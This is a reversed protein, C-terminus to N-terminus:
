YFGMKTGKTKYFVWKSRRDQKPVWKQSTYFGTKVNETKEPVWKQGKKIKLFGNKVKKREYLDM